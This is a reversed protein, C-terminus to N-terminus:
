EHNVKTIVEHVVAGDFVDLVKQLLPHKLADRKIDNIKNNNNAASNQIQNHREEPEKELSEIRITVDKGFYATSIETLRDKQSKEKIDDLFIYDKQFGIKLCDNEYELLKGAEIKSWLPYSQKKV